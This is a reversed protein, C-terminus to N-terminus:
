AQVSTRARKGKSQNSEKAASRSAACPPSISGHPVSLMGAVPTKCRLRRRPIHQVQGCSQYGSLNQLIQADVAIQRLEGLGMRRESEALRRLALEDSTEVLLTASGNGVARQMAVTQCKEENPLIDQESLWKMLNEDISQAQEFGSARMRLDELSRIGKAELKALMERAGFEAARGSKYRRRPQARFAWSALSSSMWSPLTAVYLHYTVTQEDKPLSEHGFMRLARGCIQLFRGQSLPVETLHVHRVALFSIGEACDSANAVLVRFVQGTANSVHNFEALEEMTAVQFPVASKSKTSKEAMQRLLALMVLYGCARSTMVLAKKQSNAVAQAVAWLKPCCEEPCALIRNKSGGAGDHFSSVFSCVNCYAALRKGDVGKEIKLDYSNLSEGSLSIRHVLKEQIQESLEDPVGKPLAEAFFERPRTPFSSLFGEDCLVTEAGGKVIELLQRGEEPQDLALTGSFGVVVSGQAAALQRRLQQLQWFYRGPHLLQHAEDLLLIKHDLVNHSRPASGAGACGPRAGHWAIKMVASVPQGNNMAVYSGGASAYSIAILPALPMPEGPHQAKFLDRFSKRMFGRFSQGKMELVERLSRILERVTKEPLRTLDWMERRMEHAGAALSAERPRLCSFYDRYRNPWRLLETYFNRCIAAKPFIAIKPRQDYFFNELVCIMERTKGSGTPHDVLLRQVPSKPHVLLRVIEQHPQLPRCSASSQQPVPPQCVEARRLVKTARQNFGRHGPLLNSNEDWLHSPYWQDMDLEEKTPEVGLDALLQPTVKLPAEKELAEEGSHCEIDSVEWGAGEDSSGDAKLRQVQTQRRKALAALCSEECRRLAQRLADKRTIRSLQLKSAQVSTKKRIYSDGKVSLKVCFRSSLRADLCRDLAFRMM